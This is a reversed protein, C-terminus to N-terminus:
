IGDQENNTRAFPHRLSPSKVFTLTERILFARVCACVCVCVCGESFIGQPMWNFLLPTELEPTKVDPISHKSYWCKTAGHPGRKPQNKHKTERAHLLLCGCIELVNSAMGYSFDYLRPCLDFLRFPRETTRQRM